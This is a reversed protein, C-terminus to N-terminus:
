RARRRRSKWAAFEVILLSALVGALAGALFSELNVGDVITRITLALLIVFILARVARDSM